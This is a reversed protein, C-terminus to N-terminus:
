PFVSPSFQPFISISQSDVKEQVTYSDSRSVRTVGGITVNHHHRIHNAGSIAPIVAEVLSSSLTHGGETRAKLGSDAEFVAPTIVISEGNVTLTASACCPSGTLQNIPGDHLMTGNNAISFGAANSFTYAQKNTTSEVMTATQACLEAPASSALLFLPLLLFRM